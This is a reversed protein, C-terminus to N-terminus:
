ARQRAKTMCMEFVVPMIENPTVNIPLKHFVADATKTLVSAPTEDDEQLLAPPIVPLGNGQLFSEYTMYPNMRRALQIDGSVKAVSSCFQTDQELQSSYAEFSFVYLFLTMAYQITNM